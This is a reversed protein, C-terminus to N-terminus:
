KQDSLTFNYLSRYLPELPQVFHTSQLLGGVDFRLLSAQIAAEIQAWNRNSHRRSRARELDDGGVRQECLHAAYRSNPSRRRRGFMALWEFIYIPCTPLFHGAVCCSSSAYSLHAPLPRCSSSVHGRRAACRVAWLVFAAAGALHAFLRDPKIQAVM